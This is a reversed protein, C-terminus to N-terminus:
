RWPRTHLLKALSTEPSPKAPRRMTIYVLLFVAGVVLFIIVESMDISAGDKESANLTEVRQSDAVTLAHADRPEGLVAAAGIGDTHATANGKPGKSVQRVPSSEQGRSEIQRPVFSVDQRSVPSPLFVPKPLETQMLPGEDPPSGDLVPTAEPTLPLDMLPRCGFSPIFFIVFLAILTPRGRKALLNLLRESSM